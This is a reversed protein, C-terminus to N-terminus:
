GIQSGGSSHEIIGTGSAAMVFIVAHYKQLTLNLRRQLRQDHPRFGFGRAHRQSRNIREPKTDAGRIVARNRSRIAENHVDFWM